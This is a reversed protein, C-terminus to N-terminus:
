PKVADVAPNLIVRRYNEVSGEVSPSLIKQPRRTPWLAPLHRHGGLLTVDLHDTLAERELTEEGALAHM